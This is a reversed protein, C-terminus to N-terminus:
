LAIYLAKNGSKFSYAVESNWFGESEFHPWTCLREQSFSNQKCSFSFSFWKRILPQTSLRTKICLGNLVRFHGIRHRPTFDGESIVHDMAFLSQKVSCARKDM